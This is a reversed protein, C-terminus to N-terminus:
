RVTFAAIKLVAIVNIELAGDVGSTNHETRDWIDRVVWRLGVTMEL